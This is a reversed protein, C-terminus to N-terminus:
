EAIVIIHAGEKSLAELGALVDNPLADDRDAGVALALIVVQYAAGGRARRRVLARLDSLVLDPAEGVDLAADELLALVRAEITRAPSQRASADAWRNANVEFLAAAVEGIRGQQTLFLVPIRENIALKCAQQALWWTADYSQLGTKITVGPVTYADVMVQDEVQAGISRVATQNALWDQVIQRGSRLVPLARARYCIAHLRAELADLVQIPELSREDAAALLWHGLDRLDDYDLIENNGLHHPNAM